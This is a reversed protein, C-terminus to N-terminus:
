WFRDVNDLFYKKEYNSLDCLLIKFMRCIKDNIM